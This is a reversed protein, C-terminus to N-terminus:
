VTKYQKRIGIGNKMRRLRPKRPTHLDCLANPQYKRSPNRPHASHSDHSTDLETAEHYFGGYNSPTIVVRIAAVAAPAPISTLLFLPHLFSLFGLHRFMKTAQKPTAAIIQMHNSHLRRQSMPKQKGEMLLCLISLLLLFAKPGINLVTCNNNNIEINRAEHHAKLDVYSKASSNTLHQQSTHNLITLFWPHEEHEM